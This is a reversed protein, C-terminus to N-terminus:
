YNVDNPNKIGGRGYGGKNAGGISKEQDDMQKKISAIKKERDERFVKEIRPIVRTVHIIKKIFASINTKLEEHTPDNLIRWSTDNTDIITYVRFLAM